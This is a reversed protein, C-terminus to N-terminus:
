KPTESSIIQRGEVITSEQGTQGDNPDANGVMSEIRRRLEGSYQKLDGVHERHADKLEDIEDLVAGYAKGIEGIEKESQESRMLHSKLAVLEMPKKIKIAMDEGLMEPNKEIAMLLRRLRLRRHAVAILATVRDM